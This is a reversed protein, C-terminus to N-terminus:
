LTQLYSLLDAMVQPSPQFQPMPPTKGSTVQHIMSIRSKHSSVHKLTPGVRGDADHGHCGACNMQFIANGKMPDGTLSLVNSIYPDSLQIQRIGLVALLVVLAVALGVLLLRQLLFFQGDESSVEAQRDVSNELKKELQNSM